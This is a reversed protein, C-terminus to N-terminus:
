YSCLLSILVYVCNCMLVTRTFKSPEFFDPLQKIYDDFYRVVIRGGEVQFPQFFDKKKEDTAIYLLSTTNFNYLPRINNWIQDAPLKVEHYQFDGRRIHAAHYTVSKSDFVNGGGSRFDGRKKSPMFSVPDEPHMLLSAEKHILEIIKGAACFLIDHYRMRDRVIRKYVNAVHLDEWYLYTYFHTLIRHENSYDGPFYVCLESHLQQNYPRLKRGHAVMEKFRAAKTDFAPDMFASLSAPITTSTTTSTNNRNRLHFGIFQKGPEWNEVYCASYLYKWLNSERPMKLYDKATKTTNLPVKLKNKLALHELFEEMTIMHLSEQIKTLDFFKAFTSKNEDPNKSNSLLYWTAMPPLVLTRGSAHAFMIATEAAMRINNWGGRDPEFVVFKQQDLPLKPHYKPDFLPSHYCDEPYFRQNWFKVYFYMPCKDPFIPTCSLNNNNNNSGESLSNLKLESDASPNAPPPSLPKTYAVHGQRAHPPDASASSHDFHINAQTKSSPQPKVLLHEARNENREPLKSAQTTHHLSSTKSQVNANDKLWAPVLSGLWNFQTEGHHHLAHMSLLFISIGFSALTALILKNMIFVVFLLICATQPPAFSCASQCSKESTIVTLETGSRNPCKLIREGFLLGVFFYESQFNTSAKM